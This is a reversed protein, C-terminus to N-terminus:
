IDLITRRPFYVDVDHSDITQGSIPPASPLASWASGTWSYSMSRDISIRDIEFNIQNPYFKVSDMYHNVERLVTDGKGPKAYCIVWAPIYGLVAGDEQVTTMWEPLVDQSNILDSRGGVTVSLQQRMNYLSNPYLINSITSMVPPNVTTDTAVTIPVPWQIQNSISQGKDNELNDVIKCYIVEYKVNGDIDLARAKKVEGVTIHRTYHNFLMDSEYTSEISATALTPMGYLHGVRVLTRAKDVSSPITTINELLYNTCLGFNNDTSRYILDNATSAEVFMSVGVVMSIPPTGNVTCSTISGDTTVSDIVIILNNIFTGAFTTGDIVIVEGASYFRGGNYISVSYTTANTKTVFFSAVINPAFKDRLNTLLGNVKDYQDKRIACPLYINDYPVTFKQYTNLTYTRTMYYPSSPSSYAGVTFTYPTTTGAPTTSSTSEFALRGIISGDTSISLNPPLTGSILKFIAGTGVSLTSAQGNIVTGLTSGEEGTWKLYQTNIAGSINLVLTVTPAAPLGSAIRTATNVGVDFTYTFITNGIAPLQDGLWGDATTFDTVLSPAGVTPSTMNSITYVLDTESDPNDFDYGIVKYTFYSSDNVTGIIDAVRTFDLYNQTYYAAYRDSPSITLSLPANNLIAPMRGVFGATLEQNNVTITCAAVSSGSAATVTLDFNFTSNIPLVKKFSIDLNDSLAQIVLTANLDDTISDIKGIINGASDSIVQGATLETTFLTNVGILAKTTIDTTITGTCSASTTPSTPYGTIRGLRDIELGPPLIGSTLEVVYSQNAPSTVVIPIENVYVSDLTTLTISSITPDDAGDIVISFVRDAFAVINGSIDDTETLRLVFSTETLVEVAQPMGILTGTSSLSFTNDPFNGSLLSYSLTTGTSYKPIGSFVYSFSSGENYIGLNGSETSWSLYKLVLNFKRDTTGVVKGDFMESARITFEYSAQGELSGSAYVWRIGNYVNILNTTQNLWLEGTSPAMPMTTPATDTNVWSTGNYIMLSSSDLWLSGIIPNSSSSRTTTYIYPVSPVQPAGVILGSVTGLTLGNPLSENLVSYMISNEPTSPLALLQISAPVDAIFPSGSLTGAPTVWIPSAM